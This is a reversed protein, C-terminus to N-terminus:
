TRMNETAAIPEGTTTYLRILPSQRQPIRETSLDHTLKERKSEGDGKGSEDERLNIASNWSSKKGSDAYTDADSAW